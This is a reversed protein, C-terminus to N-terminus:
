DQCSTNKDVKQQIELKKDDTWTNIMFPQILESVLQHADRAGFIGGEIRVRGSAIALPVGLETDLIKYLDPESMSIKSNLKKDSGEPLGLYVTPKESKFDFTIPIEENDDDYIGFQYVKGKLNPLGEGEDDVVDCIWLFIERSRLNKISQLDKTRQDLVPNSLNCDM